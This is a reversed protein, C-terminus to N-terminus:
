LSNTDCIKKYEFASPRVTRELTEYNIEVLGFRKEFGFAWEYNDLLSWHLYGRVDVGHLIAKHVAEIHSKIFNIRKSDGADAIGNEVVIVPKKYQKLELLVRFLGDPYIDWGMDTKEYKKKDGFKKHFYYNLGIFDQHNRIGNLFRRNWFWNMFYAHLKNIPNWNAHFFINNKAIGIEANPQLKKIVEYAKNHSKILIKIARLFSLLNKKFPPWEGRMYGNSALVMPENMTLWITSKNGLKEMVYGCYRAFIEPANKNEFGGKKAFWIPVTFHWMNIILRINRAHLADIVRTYHEVEKEDFIGEQPEIRAWEISIKHTNHGLAVIIDFDKEYLNYHDCARGCIPVKGQRASEAWDTNEIGGEVQYSATAAGWLFGEPFKKM